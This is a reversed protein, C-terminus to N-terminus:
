RGIVPARFTPKKAGEVADQMDFVIGKDCYHILSVDSTNEGGLEGIM